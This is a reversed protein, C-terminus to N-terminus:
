YVGIIRKLFNAKLTSSLNLSKSFASAAIDSIISKKMLVSSIFDIRKFLNDRRANIKNKINDNLKNNIFLDDSHLDVIKLCDIVFNFGQAGFPHLLQSSNGLFIINDTSWSTLRSTNLKYKYILSIDNIGKIHPSLERELLTINPNQSEFDFQNMVDDYVSAVVCTIKDTGPLVAFIGNKTFIQSADNMVSDCKVNFMFSTQNYNIASRKIELKESFESNVGDTVILHNATIEPNKRSFNPKFPSTLDDFSIIDNDIININKDRLCLDRLFSLFCSKDIVSGLSSSGIDTSSLKVTNFSNFLKINLKKIENSKIIESDWAKNQKLFEVSSITLSLPLYSDSITNKFNNKEILCVSYNKKSLVLSTLCGVLGGGNVLFDFKKLM